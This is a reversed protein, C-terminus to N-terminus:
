VALSAALSSCHTTNPARKQVGSLSQHPATVSSSRFAIDEYPPGAHFRLICTQGNVSEPDAECAYSPAEQKDILDPFFVNFKYGQAAFLLMHKM